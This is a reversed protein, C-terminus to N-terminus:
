RQLVNWLNSYQDTWGRFGKTPTLPTSDIDIGLHALRSEYTMLLVWTSSYCIEEGDDRNDAFVFGLLGNAEAAAAVVPELKLYKNSIHLALVGTPNLHKRYLAVAEATLLHVPVSDGSFADVLLVDFGAPPQLELSRRADGFHLVQKAEADRLFSFHSDAINLVLPNIEYIHMEDGRKGYTALNGSGLGVFGFKLRQGPMRQLLARGAGSERCYYTTTMRRRLPHMYQMGHNIVGNLLKRRLTTDEYQGDEEVRLMGYFNRGVFREDPHDVNLRQNWWAGYLGLGVTALALTVVGATSGWWARRRVVNALLALAGAMWWGIPLEWYRNFQTPAWLGVFLGGLVGGVSLSLYFSTLHEAEPKLAVMEGHCVMMTIFMAASYFGVTGWMTLSPAGPAELWGVLGLAVVLLPLWFWRQYYRSSEFTLIFSLLYLVLPGVWLFPISAVDQTLYATVALLLVTPCMALMVWTARTVLAPRSAALAVRAPTDLTAAEAAAGSDAKRWKRSLGVVLLVFVVYLGSWLWSQQPLTLNPEVVLPYSVLALLSALNSLAFLRYPVANGTARAYWSQLLPSTTSLLLYPFGVTTALLLLIASIPEEGGQPKYRDSPLIPVAALLSVGLVVAHWRSEKRLERWASLRHAYYYGLLLAAQFFLMCTTWVSSSGGFWPLIRKAVMPQIQFLLFASLFVLLAFPLM